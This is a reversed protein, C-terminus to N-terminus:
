LFLAFLRLSRFPLTLSDPSTSTDKLAAHQAATKGEYLMNRNAGANLLARCIATHGIVAAACLAFLGADTQHNVNANRAVLREVSSQDGVQAAALLAAGAQSKAVYIFDFYFCFPRVLDRLAYRQM